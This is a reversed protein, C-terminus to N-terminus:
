ELSISKNNQIIKDAYCSLVGSSEKINDLDILQKIVQDSKVM